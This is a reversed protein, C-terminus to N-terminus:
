KARQLTWAKPLSHSIPDIESILMSTDGLMVPSVLMDGQGPRDMRMAARLCGAAEAAARM